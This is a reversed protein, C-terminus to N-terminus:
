VRPENERHKVISSLFIRLTPIYLVLFSVFFVTYTVLSQINGRLASEFVEPNSAYMNVSEIIGQISFYSVYGYLAFCVIAWIIFLVFLLTRNRQSVEKKYDPRFLRITKLLWIAAFSTFLIILAILVLILNAFYIEINDITSPFETDTMSDWVSQITYIYRLLEAIFILTCIVVLVIFLIKKILLKTKDTMSM